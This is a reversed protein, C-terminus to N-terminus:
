TKSEVQPPNIMIKKPDVNAIRSMKINLIGDSFSAEIKDVDVASPLEVTRDFESFNWEQLHWTREAQQRAGKITLSNGSAYLEIHEIKVGPLQADVFVTHEDEWINVLPTDEIEMEEFVEKFHQGMMGMGMGVKM